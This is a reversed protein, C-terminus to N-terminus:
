RHGTATSYLYYALPLALLFLGVPIQRARGALLSVLVYAVLGLAIGTGFSNAV